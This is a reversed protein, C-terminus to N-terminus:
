GSDQRGLELLCSFAGSGCPKKAEPERTNLPPSAGTREFERTPVSPHDTEVWASRRERTRELALFFGAAAPNERKHILSPPVPSVMPKGQETIPAGIRTRGSCVFLGAEAPSETDLSPPVPSVM